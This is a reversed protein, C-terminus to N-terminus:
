TNDPLNITDTFSNNHKETSKEPLSNLIYTAILCEGESFLACHETCPAYSNGNSILPCIKM